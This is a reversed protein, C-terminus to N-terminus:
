RPLSHLGGRGARTLQPLGDVFERSVEFHLFSVRLLESNLPLVQASFASKAQSHKHRRISLTQALRRRGLHVDSYGNPM